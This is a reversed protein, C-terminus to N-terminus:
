SLDRRFIASTLTRMRGSTLMSAERGLNTRGQCGLRAAEPSRDDAKKLRGSLIM